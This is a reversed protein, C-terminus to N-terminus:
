TRAWPPTWWEASPWASRTACGSRDSLYPDHTGDEIREVLERSLGARDALTMITFNQRERELRLVTGFEHDDAPRWLKECAIGDNDRDLDHEGPHRPERGDNYAYVTNSRKFNTVRDDTTTKDRANKRGVGHPYVRNLATCNKYSKPKAAAQSGVAGVTGLLLATVM